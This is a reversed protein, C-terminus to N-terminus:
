KQNMNAYRVGFINKMSMCKPKCVFAAQSGTTTGGGLKEKEERGEFALCYESM